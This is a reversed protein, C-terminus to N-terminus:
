CANGLNITFGHGLDWDDYLVTSGYTVRMYGDNLLGDGHIDTVDFITCGDDPICEALSYDSNSAFDREDLITDVGNKLVMAIEEPWDDSRFAVNLMTCRGSTTSSYVDFPSSDSGEESPAFTESPSASSSHSSPAFTESPSVSSGEDSPAFTESPTATASSGETSPTDTPMPGFTDEDTQGTGGECFGNVNSQWDDCAVSKIWDIASSVRAYVGPFNPDACGIGYSVVGTLVHEGGNRAVIPGGSDGQCSDKGGEGACFSVDPNLVSGYASQCDADSVAPVIVHRLSSSPSGGDSTLGLGLVTLDQGDSPMSGDQNLTLRIGSGSLDVPFALKFLYFDNETTKEDYNPHRSEKIIEIETEGIGVTYGMHSGCHAASLVVDSGILTGGCGGM